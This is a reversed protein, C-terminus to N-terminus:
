LAATERAATAAVHQVFFDELTTACRISRCSARAPPPRAAAAGGRAGRAAPGRHLARRAARDGARARGRLAALAEPSVRDVVLEWGLVDVGLSTRHAPRRRGAQGPRRHGGPQVAAEADSLIHSSFFVTCGRDRLRLMLQRVDRRGLPDLGSMPEDFFVVDPSTSSRRPSASASCWGRRTRACGCGASRARPRGRRARAGRADAREAAPMDFLSRSTRRATGRRDPLRLVVPERAPLRHAAERGRRRGAPRPHAGHRQDSLDAADAAQHRHEERRRQARPVRVSRGAVRGGPRSARYSRRWFGVPLGQLRPEIALM